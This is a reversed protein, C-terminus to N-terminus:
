AAFTTTMIFNKFRKFLDNGMTEELYALKSSLACNPGQQFSIEPAQPLDPYDPVIQYQEVFSKYRTFMTTSMNSFPLLEETFVQSFAHSELVSKQFFAQQVVIKFHRRVEIEQDQGWLMGWGARLYSGVTEKVSSSDSTNYVRVCFIDGDMKKCSFLVAHGVAENQRGSSATFVFEEGKQMQDLKTHLRDVAKKRYPLEKLNLQKAAKWNVNKSFAFADVIAKVKEADRDEKPITQLFASLTNAFYLDSVYPPVGELTKNVYHIQEETPDDTISFLLLQKFNDSNVIEDHIKVLDEKALEAESPIYNEKKLLAADVAKNIRKICSMQQKEESSIFFGFFYFIKMIFSRKDYLTDIATQYAVKEQVLTQITADLREVVKKKSPRYADILTYAAKIHSDTTSISPM